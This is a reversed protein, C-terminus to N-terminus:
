KMLGLNKKVAVWKKNFQEFIKDFREIDAEKRKLSLHSLIMNDALSGEKSKMENLLNLKKSHKSKKKLRYLVYSGPM